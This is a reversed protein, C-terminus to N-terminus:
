MLKKLHAITSSFDAPFPALITLQRQATPHQFQISSAHLATRKIPLSAAKDILYKRKVAGADSRTLNVLPFYLPDNLLWLGLSSAHVRIQHTYGTNPTAALMAFDESFCEIGQFITSAPKGTKRDIVTRHRRDGNVRLPLDVRVEQWDFSGFVLLHYTKHITHHEFQMNLHRHATSSRGFLLVGSTDVDLRHIVWLKGFEVALMQHVNQREPHHGDRISVIGAPKNVAVLDDDSFLIELSESDNM